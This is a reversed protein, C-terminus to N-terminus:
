GVRRRGCAPCKLDADPRCEVTISAHCGGCRWRREWHEPHSGDWEVVPEGREKACACAAEANKLAADPAFDLMTVGYNVRVPIPRENLMVDPIPARLADIVTEKLDEAGLLVFEDGSKRFASIRYRDAIVRLWKGVARLVADGAQHGHTDNVAKFGTLDGFAVFTAINSAVAIEFAQDLARANGLPTINDELAKARVEDVAEVIRRFLSVEEELRHLARTLDPV